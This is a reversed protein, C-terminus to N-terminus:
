GERGLYNAVTQIPDPFHDFDVYAKAFERPVRSINGLSRGGSSIVDEVGNLFSEQNFYPHLCELLLPRAAECIEVSTEDFLCMVPKNLALLELLSTSPLESIFLDFDEVRDLLKEGSGIAEIQPHSLIKKELPYAKNEIGYGFKFTFKVNSSLGSELRELLQYRLNVLGSDDMRGWKFLANYVGTGAYIYCIRLPQNGKLDPNEAGKSKELLNHFYIDGIVGVSCEPRGTQKKAYEFDAKVMQSYLLFHCSSDSHMRASFPTFGSGRVVGTTGGHLMFFSKRGLRRLIEHLIETEIVYYSAFVFQINFKSILKQSLDFLASIKEADNELFKEIECSMVSVMSIEQYKPGSAQSKLILHRMKETPVPRQFRSRKWASDEFFLVNFRQSLRKLIQDHNWDVMHVLYFPKSNFFFSIGFVSTLLSSWSKYSTKGLIKKLFIKFLSNETYWSPSSAQPLPSPGEHVKVQPAWQRFVEVLNLAGVSISGYLDSFEFHDLLYKLKDLEYAYLFFPLRMSHTQSQFCFSNEGLEEQANEECFKIFEPFVKYKDYIFDTNVPSSIFDSLVSYSIGSSKLSHVGEETWALVLSDKDMHDRFFDLDESSSILFCKKLPSSESEAM